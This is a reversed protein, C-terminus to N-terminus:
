VVFPGREELQFLLDLIVWQQLYQEVFGWDRLFYPNVYTYTDDCNGDFICTMCENYSLYLVEKQPKSPATQFEFNQFQLAGPSSPNPLTEPHSSADWM